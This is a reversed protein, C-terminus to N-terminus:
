SNEQYVSEIIKMVDAESLSGTKYELIGSAQMSTTWCAYSIGNGQFIGCPYGSVTFEQHEEIKEFDIVSALVDQNLATAMKEAKEPHETICIYLNLADDNWTFTSQVVTIEQIQADAESCGVLFCLIMAFLIVVRLRCMSNVMSEM